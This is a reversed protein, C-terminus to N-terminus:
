YSWFVAGIGTVLDRVAAFLKLFSDAKINQGLSGFVTESSDLSKATQSYSNPIAGQFLKDTQTCRQM